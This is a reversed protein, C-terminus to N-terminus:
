AAQRSDEVRGYKIGNNVLYKKLGSLQESTAWVRFDMQRVIPTAPIDRAPEPEADRAPPAAQVVPKPQASKADEAKRAEGAAAKAAERQKRYEEQKAAAEKLAKDEALAQAVNFSNLYTRIVQGEHETELDYILNLEEEVKSLFASIEQEIKDMAYSVNLWRPNFVEELKVMGKIESEQARWLEYIAQQKEERKREEYGKVQADIALVPADVMGVLEKIKAEFANYPEMHKRKIELRKDNLAKKFNNLSARDKKADQITEDTYALGQYKELRVELEEKLEDFNFEIAKIYGDEKPSFIKLEMSMREGKNGPGPQYRKCGGSKYDEKNHIKCYSANICCGGECNDRLM